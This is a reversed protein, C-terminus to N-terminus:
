FFYRAGIGGDFGFGTDPILDVVPVLELFIDVPFDAFIYAIGVPIRIGLTNDKDKDENKGRNDNERIIYRAGVGYYLPLNGEPVKILSFNHLLYDGHIHFYDDGSFSWGVGIDAATEGTLWYKLSLGTPDGIIVGAGFRNTSASLPTISAAFTIALIFLARKFFQGTNM